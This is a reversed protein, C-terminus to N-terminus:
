ENSVHRFFEHWPQNPVLRDITNTWNETIAGMSASLEM